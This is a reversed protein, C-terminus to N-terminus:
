ACMATSAVSFNASPCMLRWRVSARRGSSRGRPTTRPVTSLDALVVVRVLFLQDSHPARTTRPTRPTVPGRVFYTHRTAPFPSPSSPTRDATSATDPPPTRSPGGKVRTLDGHPFAPRPSGSRPRGCQQARIFAAETRDTRRSQRDRICWGTKAATACTRRGRARGRYVSRGLRRGSAITRASASALRPSRHRIQHQRVAAFPRPM